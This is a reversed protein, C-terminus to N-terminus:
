PEIAIQTLALEKDITLRLTLDEPPYCFGADSCGQFHLLILREGPQQALFPMALKLTHRYIQYSRGQSDIKKSPPPMRLPGYEVQHKKAIQSFHVRDAYVFYGDKIQWTIVFTNPDSVEANVHFVQKAPLPTAMGVYPYICLFLLVLIKNM